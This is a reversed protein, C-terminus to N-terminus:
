LRPLCEGESRNADGADIEAQILDAIRQTARGDLCLSFTARAAAPDWTQSRQHALRDLLREFEADDAVLLGLRSMEDVVMNETNKRLELPVYAIAPRGNALAACLAASHVSIVVDSCSIADILDDSVATEDLDGYEAASESPHFKCLIRADPSLRRIIRVLNRFFEQKWGSPAFGGVDFPQTLLLYDYKPPNLHITPLFDPIGTAVIRRARAGRAEYAQHTRETAVCFLDVEGFGYGHVERPRGLLTPVALALLSLIDGHALQTRIRFWARASQRLLASIPKRVQLRPVLENAAEQVLVSRVSRRRAAELLQRSYYLSDAGMVVVAPEAARLLRDANLPAERGIVAHDWGAMRASEEIARCGPGGLVYIRVPVGRGRLEAAVALLSRADTPSCLVVAAARRM